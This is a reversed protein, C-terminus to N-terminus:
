DDDEARKNRSTKNVVRNYFKKTIKALIIHFSKLYGFFGCLVGILMYPRFNPFCLIHSYYSFILSSFAWFFLEIINLIRNSISLFKVFKICCLLCALFVGFAVCALFVYFQNKTVFM